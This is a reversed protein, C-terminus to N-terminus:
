KEIEPWVSFSTKSIFADYIFYFGGLVSFGIFLGLSGGVNSVFTNFDVKLSTSSVKVNTTSYYLLVTRTNEANEGLGNNDIEDEGSNTDGVDSKASNGDETVCDEINEDKSVDDSLSDAASGGDRLVENSEESKVQDNSVVTSISVVNSSEEEDAVLDIFSLDDYSLVGM